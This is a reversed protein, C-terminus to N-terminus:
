KWEQREPPIGLDQSIITKLHDQDSGTATSYLVVSVPYPYDGDESLTIEASIEIGLAEAKDSIYAQCRQKIVQELISRSPIEVGTQQQHMDMHFMTLSRALDETDLSVLPRVVTMILLLAGTLKAIKHLKGNPLVALALSTFFGASCVQLLYERIGNM